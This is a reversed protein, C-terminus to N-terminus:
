NVHINAVMSPHYVCYYEYSGPEDFTLSYSQKSLIPGSDFSSGGDSDDGSGSTVTHAVLDENHWSIAQGAEIEIPNPLYSDDGYIGVIIAPIADKPVPPSSDSDDNQTASNSQSKPTSNESMPLIRYLEGAYTLVYLYGDPGTEIDTIGGFGQAFIIPEMENPTDVKNDSMSGTGGFFNDNAIIGTRDDDLTLRYLNGNNIDGVFLNGFYEQGLDSSKLFEIDTIGIPVKWVFEPDSYAGDGIQVLDDEMADNDMDDDVEYGQILAWGSNFGPEVLNIEDGMTPGNETDWLNGTLPDFDMGFSNRIGMAYYLSLPMEDGFIPDAPVVKGNQTIRLIGGTGDADPGDGINQALTRHGGMEGVMVYVNSDLGVVVKGGVHDSRDATGPQAPLNLLTIPNILKGDVYEFRKLVNGKPEVGDKVDDGDEGGGSETYYLFVYVRGDNKKSIDMGLLGRELDSAVQVDLVPTDRTKGDIIEIVNGTNKETVLIDNNGLFAISTPAELGDVVKEVVLNPDNVVPGSQSPQAKSYAGYTTQTSSSAGFFIVFMLAFFSIPLRKNHM